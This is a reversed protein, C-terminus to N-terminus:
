NVIVVSFVLVGVNKLLIKVCLSMNIVCVVVLRKKKVEMKSQLIILRAVRQAM